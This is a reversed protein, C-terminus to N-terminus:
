HSPKLCVTILAQSMSSHYPSSAYQQSAYQQSAYQQSPMLCAAILGSSGKFCVATLGYSM